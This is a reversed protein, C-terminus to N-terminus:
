ATWVAIFFGICILLGFLLVLQGQAQDLQAIAKDSEVPAQLMQRCSKLSLPLCLCALLVWWPMWGVIAYVSLLLYPLLTEVVFLWQATRGGIQISLTRIGANRDTVIDRTNNAHLIAVIQLGHPLVLLLIRWDFGGTLMWGIGLAPLLAFLCLIDVDGLAHYKLWYYIVTMAAGVAGFLLLHWDGALWTILLGLVTGICLMVWGFRRIEKPSFKGSKMSMVGNYNNQSDVGSVHDHYDGLLNGAAQFVVGMLIISLFLYWPCHAASSATQHTWFYYSLPVFIATFAAPFSWPRTAVVWDGLSRNQNM